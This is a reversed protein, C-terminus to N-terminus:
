GAHRTEGDEDEILHEARAISEAAAGLTIATPHAGGAEWSLRQLRLLHNIIRRREAWAADLRQEIADVVDNGMRHREQQM